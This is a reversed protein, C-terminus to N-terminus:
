FDELQSALIQEGETWNSKLSSGHADHTDEGSYHTAALSIEFNSISYFPVNNWTVFNRFKMTALQETDRHLGCFTSLRM